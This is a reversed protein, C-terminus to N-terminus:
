PAYAMNTPWHSQDVSIIVQNKTSRASVGEVLKFTTFPGATLWVPVTLRPLVSTLSGSSMMLLKDPVM